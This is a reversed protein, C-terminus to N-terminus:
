VLAFYPLYGFLHNIQGSITEPNSALIFDTQESNAIADVNLDFLDEDSLILSLNGLSLKLM